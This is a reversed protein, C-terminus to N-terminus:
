GAEETSKLRKQLREDNGLAIQLLFAARAALARDSTL